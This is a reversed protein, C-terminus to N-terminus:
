KLLCEKEAEAKIEEYRKAMKKIEPADRFIGGGEGATHQGRAATFQEVFDDYKMKKAIADIACSCKYLSGYYQYDPYQQACQLVFAVRDYTPYDYAFAAGPLFLLALCALYRKM